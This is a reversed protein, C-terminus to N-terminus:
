LRERGTVIIHGRPEVVSIVEGKTRKEIDKGM